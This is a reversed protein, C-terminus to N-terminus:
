DRKQGKIIVGVLRPGANIAICAGVKFIGEAEYGLKKAMEKALENPYEEVSGRLLMYSTQPVMRKQALELMKPVIAKDGRVKEVIKMEGDIISIIPRLGILEGVFAAAVSIRGSKKAFNLTFPAFYVEVSAFWDELYSVVEEPSACNHIKKNAEMLPYGYAVTYTKSDIVYIANATGPHVELYSAKAMLAANYTNSGLSNIAVYIIDTYGQAFIEEFTEGFSHQTIQATTPITTERELVEYFEDNTFDVRELYSKDGVTLPFSLIQIDTEAEKEKPIDCASDTLLKIKRLTM